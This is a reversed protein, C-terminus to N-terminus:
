NVPAILFGNEESAFPAPDFGQSSWFVSSPLETHNQSKHHGRNSQQLEQRLVVTFSYKGRSLVTRMLLDVDPQPSLETLLLGGQAFM